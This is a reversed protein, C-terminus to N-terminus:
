RRGVFATQIKDRLKERSCHRLRRPRRLASECVITPIDTQQEM